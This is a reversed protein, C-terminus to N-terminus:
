RWDEREMAQAHSRRSPHDYMGNPAVTNRVVGQADVRKWLGDQWWPDNPSGDPWSNPDLAKNNNDDQRNTAQYDEGEWVRTHTAAADHEHHQWCLMRQGEPKDRCFAYVRWHYAKCTSCIVMKTVHRIRNCHDCVMSDVNDKAVVREFISSIWLSRAQSQGRSREATAVVTTSESTWGTAAEPRQRSYRSGTEATM